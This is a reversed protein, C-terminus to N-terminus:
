EKKWNLRLHLLAKKAMGKAFIYYDNQLEKEISILWKAVGIWDPTEDFKHFWYLKKNDVRIYLNGWDSSLMYHIEPYRTERGQDQSWEGPSIFSHSTRDRM